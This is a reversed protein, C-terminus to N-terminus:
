LLRGLENMLICIGALIVGIILEVIVYLIIRETSRLGTQGNYVTKCVPCKVLRLLRPGLSGGWWTYILRQANVSRCQPCPKFAQPPSPAIIEM